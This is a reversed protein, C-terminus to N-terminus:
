DISIQKNSYESIKEIFLKDSNVSLIKIQIFAKKLYEIQKYNENIYKLM